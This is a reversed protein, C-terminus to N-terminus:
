ALTLTYAGAAAGTLLRLGRGDNDLSDPAAVRETLVARVALCGTSPFGSFDWVVECPADVVCPGVSAIELACGTATPSATPAAIFDGPPEVNAEGTDLGATPAATPCDPRSRRAAMDVPCPELPPPPPVVIAESDPATPEPAKFYGFADATALLVLLHPPKM